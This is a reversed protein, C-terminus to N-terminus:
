SRAKDARKPKAPKPHFLEDGKLGTMHELGKVLRFMAYFVMASSPIVVGPWSWFQLKGLQRNFEETGSQAPLLWWALAFNIVASILFAGALIWSAWRLLQDFAAINRRQELARHIRKTDLLQDNYLLTRVLPQRTRLSAPIALGLVLPVAAEKVAFWFGSMKLLGLSGTLLTGVFGVISIVNWTRRRVLDYIAYGLPFSLAVIMGWAPGLYKEKSGYALLIAPIVAGFLLNLWLNEPNSRPASDFPIAESQFPQTASTDNM